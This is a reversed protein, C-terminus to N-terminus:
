KGYPTAEIPQEKPLKLLHRLDALHDSMADLKGETFKGESPKQQKMEDVLAQFIGPSLRMTPEALGAGPDISEVTRMDSQLIEVKGPFRRVIYIDRMATAPNETIRVEWGDTYNM